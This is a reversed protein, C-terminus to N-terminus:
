DVTPRVRGAQGAIARFPYLYQRFLQTLLAAGRASTESPYDAYPVGTQPYEDEGPYFTGFVKDWIVLREGFNRDFHRREISHHIRHFQPSVLIHRFPGLTLRVNSHLLHGWFWNFARVGVWTPYGVGLIALSLLMLSDEALDDLLHTRHTTLPNLNRQSHHITHFHWLWPVKHRVRHTFYGTLDAALFGVTGKAVPHWTDAVGWYLFALHTEFFAMFAAAYALIFPVFLWRKALGYVYDQLLEVSILPRKSVAYAAELALCIGLATYVRWSFVYDPLSRM